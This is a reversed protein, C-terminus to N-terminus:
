RRVPVEPRDSLVEGRIATPSLGLLDCLNVFSFPWERNTSTVWRYADNYLVHDHGRRGCYKRIDIVAQEVVALALLEEKTTERIGKWREAFQVPHIFDPIFPQVWWEGARKTLVSKM